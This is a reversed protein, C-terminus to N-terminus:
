KEYFNYFGKIVINKTGDNNKILEFKNKDKYESYPISVEITDDIKIKINKCKKEVWEKDIQFKDLELGKSKLNNVYDEKIDLKNKFVDSSFEDVDVDEEEHLVFHMKERIEEIDDFEDVKIKEKVWNDTETKLIQTYFKDDFIIRAELFKNIFYNDDSKLKNFDKIKTDLICLNEIADYYSIFAGKQIKQNVGPLSTEQKKISIKYKDGVVEIDHFYSESYELSLYGVWKCGEDDDFLCIILDSSVSESSDKTASHLNVAIEKSLETFGIGSELIKKSIEKVKSSPNFNAKRTKEDKFAKKIHKELFNSITENIEVEYENFIPADSDKNIIHVIVRNIIM